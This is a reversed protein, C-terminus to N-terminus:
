FQYDVGSLPRGGVPEAQSRTEGYGGGNAGDMAKELNAQEKEAREKYPSFEEQLRLDEEFERNVSDDEEEDEDEYVPDKWMSPLEGRSMYSSPPPNHLDYQSDHYQYLDPLDLAVLQDLSFSGPEARACAQEASDIARDSFPMFRVEAADLTMCSSTDWINQLISQSTKSVAAAPSEQKDTTVEAAGEFGDTTVPPEAADSPRDYDQEADSRLRLSSRTTPRAPAWAAASALLLM